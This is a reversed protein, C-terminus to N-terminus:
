HVHGICLELIDPGLGLIWIGDSLNNIWFIWGLGLSLVFTQLMKNTGLPLVVRQQKDM